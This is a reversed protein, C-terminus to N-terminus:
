IHPPGKMDPEADGATGAIFRIKYSYNIGDMVVYHMSGRCSAEKNYALTNAESETYTVGDKGIKGITLIRTEDGPDEAPNKVWVGNMQEYFVDGEEIPFLTSEVGGGLYQGGVGYGGYSATVLLYASSENMLARKMLTFDRADLRDDDNFDAADPNKLETGPVCLLWKSFVVADAVSLRGDGNVDGNASRKKLRFTVDMSGNEYYEISTGDAPLELDPHLVATDLGFEYDTIYATNRPNPFKCIYPSYRLGVDLDETVPVDTEIDPPNYTVTGWVRFDAHFNDTDSCIKRFDLHEGTYYDVVSFRADCDQLITRGGDTVYFSGTKTEVPKSSSGTGMAEKLEWCVSAPGNGLPEYVYVYSVTGGVVASSQSRSCNSSKIMRVNSYKSEQWKYATGSADDICVFIYSKMTSPEGDKEFTRYVSVEGNKKKFQEYESPSNPLWGFLDTEIIALEDTVRFSYLYNETGLRSIGVEANGKIMSKYAAVHIRHPMANERDEPQYIEYTIERLADGKEVIRVNNSVDDWDRLQEYYMVFVWENEMIYTEGSFNLYSLASEYDHPYMHPDGGLETLQYIDYVKVQTINLTGEAIKFEGTITPLYGSNLRGKETYAFKVDASGESVPAYVWISRLVGDPEFREEVASCDAVCKRSLNDSTKAPQWFYTSDAADLLCVCIKNDTVCIRGNANVFDEYETKCDPLWAYDDTERIKLVNNIDFTYSIVQKPATTSYDKVVIEAKGEAGAQYGAVHICYPTVGEKAPYYIMYCVEDMLGSKCSIVRQPDTDWSDLKELHMIVVKDGDVFVAGSYDYISRADSFNQPMWVPIEPMGTQQGTIDTIQLYSGSRSVSFNYVPAIPRNHTWGDNLLVCSEGENKATYYAIKYEKASASRDSPKYTGSMVLGLAEGSAEIKMRYDEGDNELSVEYLVCVTKKDDAIKVAGGYMQTETISGCSKFLQAASSYDSPVWDPVDVIGSDRPTYTQKTLKKNADFAFAYTVLNPNLLNWSDDLSVEATGATEISYVALRYIEAEGNEASDPRFVTRRVERLADGTVESIPNRDRDRDTELDSAGVKVRFLVCVYGDKVLTEGYMRNFVQASSYDAPVWDPVEEAATDAASATLVARPVADTNWAAASCATLAALLAATLKKMKM